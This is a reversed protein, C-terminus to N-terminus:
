PMYRLPYAESHEGIAIRVIYLGAELGGNITSPDFEVAHAGPACRDRFLEAIVNQQSLDLLEVVCDQAQEEITFPITYTM